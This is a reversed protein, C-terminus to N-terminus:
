SPSVLNHTWGRRWRPDGIDCRQGMKPVGCQGRQGSELVDNLRWVAGEALNDVRGEKASSVEVNGRRVRTFVYRPQLVLHGAVGLGDLPASTQGVTFSNRSYPFWLDHELRGRWTAMGALPFPQLLDATTEVDERLHQNLVSGLSRGSVRM